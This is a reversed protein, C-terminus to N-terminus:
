VSAVVMTECYAEKCEISCFRKEYLGKGPWITKGCNMCKTENQIAFNRVRQTTYSVM